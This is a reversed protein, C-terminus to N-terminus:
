RWSTEEGFGQEIRELMDSLRGQNKARKEKNEEKRANIADNMIFNEIARRLLTSSAEEARAAGREFLPSAPRNCRRPCVRCPEVKLYLSDFFELVFNLAAVPFVDSTSYLSFQLPAAMVDGGVPWVNLATLPLIVTGVGDAGEPTADVSPAYAAEAHTPM